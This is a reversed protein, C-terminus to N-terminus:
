TMSYHEKLSEKWINLVAIIAGWLFGCVTWPFSPGNGASKKDVIVCICVALVAAVVVVIVQFRAEAPGQQLHIGYGINTGENGETLPKYMLRNGKRKPLRLLFATEDGFGQPNNYLHLLLSPTLHVPDGDQWDPKKLFEYEATNQPLRNEKPRVVQCERWLEFKKRKRM